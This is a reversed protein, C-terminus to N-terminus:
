LIVVFHGLIVIQEKNDPTETQLKNDSTENINIVLMKNDTENSNDLNKDTTEDIILKKNFLKMTEYLKNLKQLM